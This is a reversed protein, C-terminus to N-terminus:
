IVPYQQNIACTHPHIHIRTETRESARLLSRSNAGAYFFDFLKEGLAV